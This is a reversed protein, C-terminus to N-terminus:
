LQMCGTIHARCSPCPAGPHAPLRSLTHQTLHTRGGRRTCRIGNMHEEVNIAEGAGDTPRSPRPLLLLSAARDGARGRRRNVVRPLTLPFPTTLVIVTSSSIECRSHDRRTTPPAPFSTRPEAGGHIMCGVATRSRPTAWKIPLSIAMPSTMLDNRLQAEERKAVPRAAM